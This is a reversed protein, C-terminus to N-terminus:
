YRSVNTGVILDQDGAVEPAIDIYAPEKSGIIGWTSRYFTAVCAGSAVATCKEYDIVVMDLQSHFVWASERIAEQWHDV